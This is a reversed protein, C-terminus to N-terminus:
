APDLLPGRTRFYLDRCALAVIEEGIAQDDGPWLDDGHPGTPGFLAVGVLRQSLDNRVHYRIGAFGADFARTALAQSHAYDSASSAGVSADIGYRGAANDTVDALVLAFDAKVAFLRRGAIEARPLSISRFSQLTEVFAGLPSEAFYCTGHGPRDTLDFRFLGDARFFWAGNAAHHIRYLLSGHDVVHQPFNNM